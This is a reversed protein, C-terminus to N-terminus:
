STHPRLRLINILASTLVISDSQLYAVKDLFGASRVVCKDPFGKKDGNLYVIFHEGTEKNLYQFGINPDNDWEPLKKENEM